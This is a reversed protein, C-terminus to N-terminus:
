LAKLRYLICLLIMILLLCKKWAAKQVWGSSMWDKIKLLRLAPWHLISTGEQVALAEDETTPDTDVSGEQVALAEDESSDTPNNGSENGNSNKGGKKKKGAM